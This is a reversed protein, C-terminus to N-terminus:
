RSPHVCDAQIPHTSTGPVNCAQEVMVMGGPQVSRSIQRTEAVAHKGSQSQSATMKPASVSAPASRVIMSSPKSSSSRRSPRTLLCLLAAAKNGTPTCMRQQLASLPQHAPLEPRITRRSQTRLTSLLLTATSYRGSIYRACKSGSGGSSGGCTLLRGSVAGSGM